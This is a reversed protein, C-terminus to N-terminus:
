KAGQKQTLIGFIRAPAETAGKIKMPAILIFGGVAPMASLNNLCEVILKQNGLLLAHVPYGITPLDPSLTDVGLGIIQRELLLQAAAKSISPFILENRFAHNPWRQDWGTQIAIFSRAPIMGHLAEFELVDQESLIYSEHAKATVDIKILPAYFHQLPIEDIFWKGSEIHAPADLHTGTGARLNMEQVRFKVEDSCDQYDLATHLHFGCGEFTPVNNSLTHTLDILKM